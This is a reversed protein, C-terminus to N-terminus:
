GKFYSRDVGQQTLSRGTLFYVQFRRRPWEVAIM